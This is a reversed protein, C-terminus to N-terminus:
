VLEDHAGGGRRRPPAAWSAEAVERGTKVQTEKPSRVTPKLALIRDATLSRKVRQEGKFEFLEIHFAGVASVADGEGLGELKERAKESFAAVDWWEISSSGNVVKLKFFTVVGGNRTPRTTPEGHLRGSILVFASM